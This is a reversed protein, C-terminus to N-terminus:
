EPPCIRGVGDHIYRVGEYRQKWEDIPETRASV